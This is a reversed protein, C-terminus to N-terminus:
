SIHCFGKKLAWLIADRTVSGGVEVLSEVTRRKTSCMAIVKHVEAALTKNAICGLRSQLLEQHNQMRSNVSVIQHGTLEKAAYHRFLSDMNFLVGRQSGNLIAQDKKRSLRIQEKWLQGFRMVVSRWTFGDLVRQRATTGLQRRLDRSQVLLSLREYLVETDMITRQALYHECSTAMLAGLRGSEKAAGSDWYTPILFGDKGERVIDRYGSWDSAVVPLGSAMAELLTLGFTEQINDVPSVFIDAAAYVFPKINPAINPIIKLHQSIGFLSGLEELFRVYTERIDQGSLILCIPGGIGNKVLQSVAIILPELDAKFQETLRGLYLLVTAELPIGFKQRAEMQSQFGFVNEDVGLPIQKIMLGSHNGDFDRGFRQTLNQKSEELILEVAKRGAHSTAVLADCPECFSLIQNYNAFLMDWRVAHLLSCIPAAFPLYSRAMALNLLEPGAGLFVCDKKEISTDINQASIIRVKAGGFEQVLDSGVGDEIAGASHQSGAPLSTDDVMVDIRDVVNYRLAAQVLDTQAITAGQRDGSELSGGRRKPWGRVALIM